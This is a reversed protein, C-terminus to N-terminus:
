QKRKRKKVVFKPAVLSWDQGVKRAAARYMFEKGTMDPLRPVVSFMEGRNALLVMREINKYPAMSAYAHVQLCHDLTLGNTTKLEVVLVRNGDEVLIDIRGAIKGYRSFWKDSIEMGVPIEFTVYRQLYEIMQAENIVVDETKNDDEKIVEVKQRKSKKTKLTVITKVWNKTVNYLVLIANTVCGNLMSEDVTHLNPVIQRWWHMYNLDCTQKVIGYKLFDIWEFEYPDQHSDYWEILDKDMSKRVNDSMVIAGIKGMFLFELKTQVAAGIFISLDEMTGNVRGPILRQENTLDFGGSHIQHTVNTEFLRDVDSLLQDYPVYAFLDRVTCPRKMKERDNVRVSQRITAYEDSVTEAIAQVILKEQARTCAVYFLNFHNLPTFTPDDEDDYTEVFADLGCVYIAKRELGKFKHITSAVRKNKMVLEQEPAGESESALVVWNENANRGLQEVLVGIPSKGKLSRGLLAVDHNEYEDFLDRVYEFCRKDTFGRSKFYVVSDPAAARKPNARIGTGWLASIQEGHEKWWEPYCAKLNNPNLYRNVFEAMEHTIRWCITMHMTVFKGDGHVLQGFYQAPNLLYKDYAGNFSFIRQFPDGLLIMVPKVPFHQLMHCVFKYYLANMDQAEDIVLLGFELPLAPLKTRTADELMQDSPTNFFTFRLYYKLAAAHYSHCEVIDGINMKTIRERTEDKLRANYTLILTRMNHQKYFRQAIELSTSTKGCGAKSIVQVNKRQLAAACIAEQEDSLEM